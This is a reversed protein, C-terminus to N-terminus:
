CLRAYYTRCPLLLAFVEQHQQHRYPQGSRHKIFPKIRSRPGRPFCPIFLSSPFRAPRPLRASSPQNGNRLSYSAPLGLAVPRFPQRFSFHDCSPIFDNPRINRLVCIWDREFASTQHYLYALRCPTVLQMEQSVLYDLRNVPFRSM